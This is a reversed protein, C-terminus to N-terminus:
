PVEGTTIATAAQTFKGEIATKLLGIAVFLAVVILALMVAYESLELGSEDRFFRKLMNMKEGKLEKKKEGNGGLSSFKVSGSVFGPAVRGGYIVEILWPCM